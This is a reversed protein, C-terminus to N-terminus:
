LAGAGTGPDAPTSSAAADGDDEPPQLKNAVDPLASLEAQIEEESVWGRRGELRRDFKLRAEAEQNM